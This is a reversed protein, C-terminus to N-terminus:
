GTGRSDGPSVYIPRRVRCRLELPQQERLSSNQPLLAENRGPTSVGHPSVGQRDNGEGYGLRLPVERHEYRPTRGIPRAFPPGVILLRVVFNRNNALAAAAARIAEIRTM